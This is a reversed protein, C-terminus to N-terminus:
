WVILEDTMKLMNDYVLQMAYPNNNVVEKIHQQNIKYRIM